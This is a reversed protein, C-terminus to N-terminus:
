VCPHALPWQWLIHVAIRGLQIHPDLYTASPLSGVKVWMDLKSSYGYMDKSVPGGGANAEGGLVLLSDSVHM